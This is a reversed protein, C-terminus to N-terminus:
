FSLGTATCRIKGLGKDHRDGLVGYKGWSRTM